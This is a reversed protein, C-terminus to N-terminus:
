TRNTISIRVRLTWMRPTVAYGVAAQVVCAARLRNILKPAPVERDPEQDAVPIRLEGRREGGLADVRHLGRRLCWSGVTVRFPEHATHSRFAGVPHQNVVFAVGERHEILESLVEVVVTRMLAPLLAWGVVIGIGDYPEVGRDLAVADQVSHDVFVAAGGSGIVFRLECVSM